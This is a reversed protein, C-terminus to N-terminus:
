VQDPTINKMVVEVLDRSFRDPPNELSWVGNKRCVLNRSSLKKLHRSMAMEPVQCQTCLQSLELSNKKLQRVIRIRREHTFATVCKVLIRYNGECLRIERKVADTLLDGRVVSYFVFKGRRESQLFGFSELEQLHKGVNNEDEGIRESARKVCLSPSQMLLHFLKLRLELALCRFHKCLLQGEM